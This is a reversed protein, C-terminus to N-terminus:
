DADGAGEAIRRHVQDGAVTPALPTSSRPPTTKGSVSGAVRDSVNVTPMRASRLEPAARAVTVDGQRALDLQRLYGAGISEHVHARRDALEDSLEGAHM